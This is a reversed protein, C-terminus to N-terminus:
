GEGRRAPDASTAAGPSTQPSCAQEREAATASGRPPIRGYKTGGPGDHAENLDFDRDRMFALRPRQDGNRSIAPGGGLCPGREALPQEGGGIPETLARALSPLPPLIRNPNERRSPVDSGRCAQQRM